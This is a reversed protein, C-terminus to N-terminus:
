GGDHQVSSQREIIFATIAFTLTVWFFPSFIGSRCIGLSFIILYIPLLLIGVVAFMQMIKLYKLWGDAKSIAVLLIAPTILLMDYALTSSCLSLTFPLLATFLVTGQLQKSKIQKGIFFALALLALYLLVVILNYLHISGGLPLIPNPIAFDQFISLIPTEMKNAMCVHGYGELVGVGGVVCSMLIGIIALLCSIVVLNTQGAAIECVILPILIYPKLWLLFQFASASMYRKKKLSIFLGTLAFLLLPTLQEHWVAMVAPGFAGLVAVTWLKKVGKIGMAQCLALASWLMLPISLGIWVYLAMQCRLWALPSFLWSLVPSISFSHNYIQSYSGNHMLYSTAYCLGFDGAQDLKVWPIAVLMPAIFCVVTVTLQLWKNLKAGSAM